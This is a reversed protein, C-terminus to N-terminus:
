SQRLPNVVEPTSIKVRLILCLHLFGEVSDFQLRKSLSQCVSLYLDLSSDKDSWTSCRAVAEGVSPEVATTEM